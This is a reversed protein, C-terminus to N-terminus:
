KVKPPNELVQQIAYYAPKAQYSRDFISGDKDAMKSFADGDSLNWVNWTVVGSHRKELLVRVIAAFTQAQAEYDKPEGSLWVNNETVHFSLKNAHAWEILEGLVKMDAANKEFGVNIHAQWGIGDVRLGADRLYNVLAKIKNWAEPEMGCHQNIILQKHPAEKTAIEFARKIYLPPRLPHSEDFGMKPWPNEWKDVGPRPGFWEGKRDVTENVVDMWKIQEVTDYRRCLQTMFEVLTRELEEATREDTLVWTSSQPSIPGHMRIVQGKEACHKVWADALEWKWVGPKPNITSQKFDNEPTVYSFERDMTIGSGGKRKNWGTTGGFWVHGDPYKEAIIERIRRGKPVPFAGANDKEQAISSCTAVVIVALRVTDSIRM